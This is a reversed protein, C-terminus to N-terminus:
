QSFLAKWPSPWYFGYSVLIGAVHIRLFSDEAETFNLFPPNINNSFCLYFIQFIFCNVKIWRIHDTWWHLTESAGSLWYTQLLTNLSITPISLFHCKLPWLTGEWIGSFIIVKLYPCKSVKIWVTWNLNGTCLASIEQNVKIKRCKNSFSSISKCSWQICSTDLLSFFYTNRLYGCSFYIIILNLIEALGSLKM